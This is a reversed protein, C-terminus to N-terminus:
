WGRGFVSSKGQKIANLVEECLYDIDTDTSQKTVHVKVGNFDFSVKTNLLKAIQVAEETMSYIDGPRWGLDVHTWNCNM